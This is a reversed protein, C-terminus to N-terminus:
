AFSEIWAACQARLGDDTDAAPESYSGDSLQGDPTLVPVDRGSWGAAAFAAAVIADRAPTDVVVSDIVAHPHEPCAMDEDAGLGESQVEAGCESCHYSKQRGTGYTPDAEMAAVAERERETALAEAREREARAAPGCALVYDADRDDAMFSVGVSAAAAFIERRQEDDILPSDTTQAQTKTTKM